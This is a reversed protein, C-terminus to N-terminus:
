GLSPLLNKVDLNIFRGGTCIRFVASIQEKHLSGIVGAIKVEGRDDADDDASFHAPISAHSHLNVALSEHEALDPRQATLHAPGASISRMACYRLQQTQDDYILWAGFENPFAATADTVFQSMMEIPIKGFGLEIRKELAGYPTPFDAQTAIPWVLRLWPRRIEVWLGDRASLFRLGSNELPALEGHLPVMVTPCATQLVSDLPNLSM